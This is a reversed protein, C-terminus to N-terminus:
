ASSCSTRPTSPSGPLQSSSLIATSGDVASGSSSCGSSCGCTPCLKMKRPATSSWQQWLLNCVLWWCHDLSTKDKLPPCAASINRQPLWPQVLICSTQAKNLPHKKINAYFKPPSCTSDPMGQSESYGPLCVAKWAGLTPTKRKLTSLLRSFNHWM